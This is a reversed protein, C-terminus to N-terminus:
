ADNQSIWGMIRLFRYEVREKQAITQLEALLETAMPHEQFTICDGTEHPKAM